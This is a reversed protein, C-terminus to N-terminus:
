RITSLQPSPSALAFFPYRSVFPALSSERFKPVLFEVDEGAM